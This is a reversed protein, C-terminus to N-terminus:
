CNPFEFRGKSAIKLGEIDEFEYDLYDVIATESKLFLGLKSLSNSNEDTGLESSFFDVSERGSFLTASRVDGKVLFLYGRFLSEALNIKSQVNLFTSKEYDFKRNVAYHIKNNSNDVRDYLNKELWDEPVGVESLDSPEDYEVWIPSLQFQAQTLEGFWLTLDGFCIMESDAM